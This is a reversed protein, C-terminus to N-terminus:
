QLVKSQTQFARLKSLSVATLSANVQITAGHQFTFHVPSLSVIFAGGCIVLTPM